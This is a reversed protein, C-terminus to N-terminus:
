TGHVNSFFTYEGTAPDLSRYINILDQQDTTTNLEETNKSTKQRTTRVIILLSNNFCGATITPNDIEGKLEILKQKM